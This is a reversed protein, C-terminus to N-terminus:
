TWSELGRFVHAKFGMALCSRTAPGFMERQEQTPVLCTQISLCLPWNRRVLVAESRRLRECRRQASSYSNSWGPFTVQDPDALNPDPRHVM